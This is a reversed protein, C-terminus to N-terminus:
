EKVKDEEIEINVAEIDNSLQMASVAISGTLYNIDKMTGSEFNEAFNILDERIVEVKKQLGKIKGVNKNFKLAYIKNKLYTLVVLFDGLEEFFQTKQIIEGILKLIDKSMVIKRTPIEEYRSIMEKYSIREYKRTIINNIKFDFVFKNKSYFFDIEKLRERDKPSYLKTIDLEQYNLLFHYMAYVEMYLYPIKVGGSFGKKILENEGEKSGLSVMKIIKTKALKFTKYIRVFEDATVKTTELNDKIIICDFVQGERKIKKLADFGNEIEHIYIEKDEEINALVDSKIRKLDSKIKEDDSVILIKM